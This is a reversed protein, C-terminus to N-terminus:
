FIQDLKGEQLSWLLDIAVKAFFLCHSAMIDYKKKDIDPVDSKPAKEVIAQRVFFFMPVRFTLQSCFPSKAM